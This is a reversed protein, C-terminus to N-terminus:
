NIIEESQVFVEEGEALPREGPIEDEKIANAAAVIQQAAIAEIATQDINQVDTM